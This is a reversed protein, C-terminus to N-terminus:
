PPRTGIKKNMKKGEFEECRLWLSDRELEKEELKRQLVTNKIYLDEIKKAFAESVAAATKEAVIEVNKELLIELRSVSILDENVAGLGRVDDM